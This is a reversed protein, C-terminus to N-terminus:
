SLKQNSEILIKEKLRAALQKMFDRVHILISHAQDSDYEERQHGVHNRWADKVYRFQVAAESYFTLKADKEKGKKLAQMERIKKEISEIINQWNELEIGETFEVGLDAALAYLGKQLVGMSHFVSASNRDLAYCKCAEILDKASSPFADTIQKSMQPAFGDMYDAKRVPVYVCHRRMFQDEIADSLVRLQRLLDSIPGKRGVAWEVYKIRDEAADLEFTQIQKTLYKLLHRVERQQAPTLRGAAPEQSYRQRLDSLRQFASVFAWVFEMVNWLGVLKGRVLALADAKVGGEV